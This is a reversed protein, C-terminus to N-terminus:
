APETGPQGAHAAAALRSRRAARSGLYVSGRREYEMGAAIGRAYSTGYSREIIWFALDLGATVGGCTLLDGDDVVRDAVVKAGEAALAERAAAHTTAARGRTLGAASLLMVGTCVGAITGGGAVTGELREAIVGRAIEGRVGDPANEAWGGGPVLVLDSAGDLVGDVGVALGHSGTVHACAVPTVLQVVVETRASALNQLVELPGIADLEDFGDFVVIEIRM